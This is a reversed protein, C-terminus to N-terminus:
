YGLQDRDRQERLIEDYGRAVELLRVTGLIRKEILKIFQLAQRKPLQNPILRCHVAIELLTMHNMLHPKNKLVIFANRYDGRDAARHFENYAALSSGEPPKASIATKM